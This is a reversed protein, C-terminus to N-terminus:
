CVGGPCGGGGVPQLISQPIYMPPIIDRFVSDFFAGFASIGSQIASESQAATAGPGLYLGSNATVEIIM